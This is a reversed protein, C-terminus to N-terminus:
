YGIGVVELGLVVEVVWLVKDGVWTEFLVWRVVRKFM